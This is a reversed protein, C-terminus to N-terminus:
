QEANSIKLSVPIVPAVAQQQWQAQFVARQAPPLTAVQAQAAQIAALTQLREEMAPSLPAAPDPGSPRGAMGAMTDSAISQRVADFRGANASEWQAFFDRRTEAPLAGAQERARDIEGLLAVRQQFNAAEAVSIGEPPAVADPPKRTVARALEMQLMSAGIQAARDGDRLVFAQLLVDRDANKAGRLSEQVEMLDAIREDLLAAAAADASQTPSASTEVAQQASAPHNSLGALVSLLFLFLSIGRM